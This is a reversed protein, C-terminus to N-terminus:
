IISCCCQNNINRRTVNPNRVFGFNNNKRNYLRFGDYGFPNDRYFEALGEEENYTLLKNLDKYSEVSYVVVQDNFKVNKSIKKEKITNVSIENNNLENSNQLTPFSSFSNENKIM